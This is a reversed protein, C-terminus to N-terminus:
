KEEVKVKAGIKGSIVLDAAEKMRLEIEESCKKCVDVEEPQCGMKKAVIVESGRMPTTPPHIRDGCVDCTITLTRM